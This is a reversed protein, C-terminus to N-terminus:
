GLNLTLCTFECVWGLIFGLYVELQSHAKLKLRSSCAIGALLVTILLLPILDIHMIVSFATLAGALGGMGAAHASIKLMGNLLVIVALCCTAGFLVNYIVPAPLHVQRVLYYSFFYFFSTMILPFWREERKEIMLSSIMKKRLLFFAIILPLLITNIFLIAYITAKAEFSVTYNLFTNLRFFILVGILPMLVPHLLYSFIKALKVEM